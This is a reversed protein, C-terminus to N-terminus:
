VMTKLDDTMTHLRGIGSRTQSLGATSEQASSNISEMAALVQQVAAVQQPVTLLTQQASDSAKSSAAVVSEFTQAMEQVQRIGGEMTKSGEETVLVTTDTERQIQAVLASIREASRRSEDALKRIETAVVAFGRGHEGARAAEVAANLALMNTQSALDGVVETITGIQGTLQSLSLIHSAIDDVRVRMGEMGQITKNVTALGGQAAEQSERATETAFKVLDATQRFSAELEDMTTTTEHVAASQNMASQEQQQVTAALESSTGSLSQITEGLSGTISRALISALWGLLAITLGVVVLNTLNGEGNKATVEAQTQKVSDASEKLFIDVASKHLGYLQSVEGMLVTKALAMNGSSRAPLYKTETAKLYTAGTSHVDDLAKKTTSNEMKIAWYNYRDEFEDRENRQREELQRLAQVDTASQMEYLTLHHGRLFLSPPSAEGYVDKGELMKRTYPGDSQLQQRLYTAYVSNGILALLALVILMFIKVKVTQRQLWNKNKKQNRDLSVM